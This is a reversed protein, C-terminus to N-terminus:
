KIADVGGVVRTLMTMDCALVGTGTTSLGLDSFGGTDCAVVVLGGTLLAGTGTGLLGTNSFGVADCAAVVAGGTLAVGTGTTPLGTDSFGAADCVVVACLVGIGTGSMGTNSFDVADCAVVDAGGTLAVGDCALEAASCASVVADCGLAAVGGTRTESPVTAAGFGVWDSMGVGMGCTENMGALEFPVAEIGRSSCQRTPSQSASSM